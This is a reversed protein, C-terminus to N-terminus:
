DDSILDEQSFFDWEKFSAVDRFNGGEKMQFTLFSSVYVCNAVINFDHGKSRVKYTYMEPLKSKTEELREEFKTKPKTM